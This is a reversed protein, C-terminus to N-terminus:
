IGSLVMDLANTVIFSYHDDLTGVAHGLDKRLMSAIAQTLMIHPEGEISFVPNLRQMPKLDSEARALPVVVTTPLDVLLDAQVELVYGNFDPVRYLRRGAM